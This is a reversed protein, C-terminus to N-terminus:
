RSRPYAPRAAAGGEVASDCKVLYVGEKEFVPRCRALHRRIAEELSKASVPYPDEGRVFLRWPEGHCEPFVSTVRRHVAHPFLHGQACAPAETPIRAIAQRYAENRARRPLYVKYVFKDEKYPGLQYSAAYFSISLPSPAFFLHFAVGLYLLGSLFRGKARPSLAHTAALFFIPVFVAGHHFFPTNVLPHLVLAHILFSPLALLVLPSFLPLFALPWLLFGFYAIKQLNLSELVIWPQLFLTRLQAMPEDGLQSFMFAYRYGEPSFHPIVVFQAFAFYATFGLCGGVALPKQKPWFLLSFLAAHLAMQQKTSAALLLYWFARGRPMQHYALLFFPICFLDPHFDFLGAYWVPPYLYFALGLLAAAPPHRRRAILYVLLGSGGLAGAQLLLLLYASPWAKYLPILLALFPSVHDAFFNYQRFPAEFLHGRISNELVQMYIGLDFAHTKFNAHRLASLLFLTATFALPAAYPFLGALGRPVKGRAYGAAAALLAAACGVAYIPAYRALTQPDAM